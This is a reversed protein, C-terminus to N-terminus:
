RGVEKGEVFARYARQARERLTALEPRNWKARLEATSRSREASPVWAEASDVLTASGGSERERRVDEATAVGSEFGLQTRSRTGRREILDFCERVASDTHVFERYSTGFRKNLRRVVSGFDSTVDAFDGVVMRHRYPMLRRYFRAYSVLAGRMSIGPERVVQSLVVGRPERILAITPLGTRAAEILQAPAHLHHALRVPRDQALQFAYVAFTSACRTYGDMVLETDRGIVEPSPGPYRRRALPLYLSPYESLRSRM